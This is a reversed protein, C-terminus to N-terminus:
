FEAVEAEIAIVGKFPDTETKGMVEPSIIMPSAKILAEIEKGKSDADEKVV